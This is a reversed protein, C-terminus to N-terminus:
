CKKLLLRAALVLFVKAVNLSNSVIWAFMSGSGFSCKGEEDSM